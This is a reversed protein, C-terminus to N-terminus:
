RFNDCCVPDLHDKRRPQVSPVVRLRTPKAVLSANAFAALMALSLSEHRAEVPEDLWEPMQWHRSLACCWEGDGVVARVLKWEPLGIEILTLAVDTWAEAEILRRPQGAQATNPALGSQEILNAVLSLTVKTAARVTTRPDQMRAPKLTPGHDRLLMGNTWELLMAGTRRSQSRASAM